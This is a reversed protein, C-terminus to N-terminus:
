TGDTPGKHGPDNWVRPLKNNVSRNKFVWGAILIAAASFLASKIPHGALAAIVGAVAACGAAVQLITM